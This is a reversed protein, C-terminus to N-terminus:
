IFLYWLKVKDALDKQDQIYDGTQKDRMIERVKAIRNADKKVDDHHSSYEIM